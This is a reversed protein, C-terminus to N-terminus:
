PPAGAAIGHGYAGLYRTSVDIARQGHVIGLGSAEVLGDHEGM